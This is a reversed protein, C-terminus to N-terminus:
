RGRQFRMTVNLCRETQSIICCQASHVEVKSIRQIHQAHAHTRTRARQTPTIPKNSWLLSPFRALSFVNVTFAWVNGVTQDMGTFESSALGSFCKSGVRTWKTQWCCAFFCCIFCCSICILSNRGSDRPPFRLDPCGSISSMAAEAM